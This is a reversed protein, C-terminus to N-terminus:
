KLESWESLWDMGIIDDPDGVFMGPRKKLRALKSPPSELVIRLVVGKRVIEVPVGTEIAEDLIRYVNERLKSATIPM